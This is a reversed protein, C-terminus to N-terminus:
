EFYLESKQLDLDLCRFTKSSLPQLLPQKPKQQLGFFKIVPKEIADPPVIQMAKNVKIAVQKIHNQYEKLATQVMTDPEKGANQQYWSHGGFIKEVNVTFHTSFTEAAKDIPIEMQTQLVRQINEM